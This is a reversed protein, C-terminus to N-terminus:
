MRRHWEHFAVKMPLYSPHNTPHSLHQKSWLCDEHSPELQTAIIPELEYPQVTIPEISERDLRAQRIATYTGLRTGVKGAAIPVAVTAIALTICTLEGLRSAM